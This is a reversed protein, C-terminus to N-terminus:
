SEPLNQFVLLVAQWGYKWQGGGGWVWGGATHNPRRLAETAEAM